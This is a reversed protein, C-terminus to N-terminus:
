PAEDGAVAEAPRASDRRERRILEEDTCEGAAERRILEADIADIVPSDNDRDARAAPDLLEQTTMRRIEASTVPRGEGQQGPTGPQREAAQALQRLEGYAAEDDWVASIPGDTETLFARLRRDLPWDHGPGAWASAAFLAAVEAAPNEFQADLRNNKWFIV